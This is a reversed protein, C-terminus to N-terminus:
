LARVPQGLELKVAPRLSGLWELIEPRLEGATVTVVCSAGVGVSFGSAGFEKLRNSIQNVRDLRPDALSVTGSALDDCDSAEGSPLPLNATSTVTPESPVTPGPATALTGSTRDASRFTVGCSIALLALLPVLLASRPKYM